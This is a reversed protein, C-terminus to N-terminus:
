RAELYSQDHLRLEQITAVGSCPPKGLAHCLMVSSYAWVIINLVWVHVIYSHVRLVWYVNSDGFNIAVKLPGLGFFFIPSCAGM